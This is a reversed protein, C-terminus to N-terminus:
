LILLVLFALTYLVTGGAGMCRLVEREEIGRQSLYASIFVKVGSEVAFVLHDTLQLLHSDKVSFAVMFIIIALAIKQAIGTIVAQLHVRLVALPGTVNDTEDPLAESGSDDHQSFVSYMSMTCELLAPYGSKPWLISGLQDQRKTTLISVHPRTPAIDTAHDVEDYLADSSSVVPTIDTTREVGNQLTNHSSASNEHESSVSFSM